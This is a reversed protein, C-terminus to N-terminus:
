TIWNFDAQNQITRENSYLSVFCLLYFWDRFFGAFYQNVIMGQCSLLIVNHDPLLSHLYSKLPYICYHNGNEHLLLSGPVALNLNKEEM